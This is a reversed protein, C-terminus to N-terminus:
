ESPLLHQQAFGFGLTALTTFWGWLKDPYLAVGLFKKPNLAEDKEIEDIADSLAEYVSTALEIMKELKEDGKLDSTAERLITTACRQIKTDLRKPNQQLINQDRM